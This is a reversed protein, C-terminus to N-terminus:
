FENGLDVDRAGADLNWRDVIGGMLHEHVVALLAAPRRGAM